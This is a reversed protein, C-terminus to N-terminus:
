NASLENVTPLSDTPEDSEVEELEEVVPELYTTQIGLPEIGASLPQASTVLPLLGAIVARNEDFVEVFKTGGISSLPPTEAIGVDLADKVVSVKLFPNAHKVPLSPSINPSSHQRTPTAGPFYDIKWTSPILAVPLLWTANLIVGYGTDYGKVTEWSWSIFTGIYSLYPVIKQLFLIVPQLPPPFVAVPIHAFFWALATSIMVARKVVTIEDNNLVAMVPPPLFIRYGWWTAEISFKTRSPLWVKKAAKPSVPSLLPSSLKPVGTISKSTLPPNKPPESTRGKKKSRFPWWRWGATIHVVNLNAVNHGPPHSPAIALVLNSEALEVEDNDTSQLPLYLMVGMDPVLSPMQMHDDKRTLNNIPSESDDNPPALSLLISWVTPYEDKAGGNMITPNSLLNILHKDNIRIASPPPPPCCSSDCVPFTSSLPSELNSTLTPTPYLTPPLSHILQRIKEALVSPDEDNDNDSNIDIAPLDDCNDVEDGDLIDGSPFYSLQHAVQAEKFYGKLKPFKRLRKFKALQHKHHRPQLKQGAVISEQIVTQELPFAKSTGQAETSYVTECSGHM